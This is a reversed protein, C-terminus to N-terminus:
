RREQDLEDTADPQSATSASSFVISAAVEAATREVAPANSSPEFLGDCPYDIEFRLSM